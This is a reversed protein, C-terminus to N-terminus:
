NDANLVRRQRQTEYLCVGAAVSINLSEVDGMMPIIALFDCHQRTLQRMGKGESGFVWAMPGKLDLQDIPKASDTMDTGFIWFGKEKLQEMSRALNTVTFFPVTETTGSATKVVTANVGASNDKPVIIASVGFADAVRFCAGLNHPDTISDLLMVIPNASMDLSKLFEGFSLQARTKVEAVIGQHQKAGSMQFLRLEDASMLSLQLDDVDQLLKQMRPDKRSSDYYIRIIDEPHHRLTANVGHFGYIFRPKAM